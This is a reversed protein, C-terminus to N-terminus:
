NHCPAESAMPSSEFNAERIDIPALRVGPAVSIPNGEGGCVSRFCTDMQTDM